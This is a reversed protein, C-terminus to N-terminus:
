GAPAAPPGGRGYGVDDGIVPPCVAAGPGLNLDHKCDSGENRSFNVRFSSPLWARSNTENIGGHNVNGGKGWKFSNPLKIIWDKIVHSRTICNLAVKSKGERPASLSRAKAKM